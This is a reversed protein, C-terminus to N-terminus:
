PLINDKEGHTNSYAARKPKIDTFKICSIMNFVYVYLIFLLIIKGTIDIWFDTHIKGARNEASCGYRGANEFTVRDITLINSNNAINVGDKTWNVKLPNDGSM